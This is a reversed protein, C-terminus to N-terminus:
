SECLIRSLPAGPNEHGRPVASPHKESFRPTLRTKVSTPRVEVDEWAARNTRRLFGIEGEAPHKVAFRLGHSQYRFRNGWGRRGPSPEILYSLTVRLTVLHPGLGELVERPWPLPHVHMQYPEVSGRGGRRFPQLAGQIILTAYNEASYLARKLSPVGYGYCRLRDERERKPFEQRMEPTWRASHVILGRVTEPWFSPYEAQIIAAMRAVGAAAASTEGTTTLLRGSDHLTTSLLALDDIFDPQQNAPDVASNGGEFVVDPKNPSGRWTWPM